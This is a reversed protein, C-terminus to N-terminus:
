NNNLIIYVVKDIITKNLLIPIVILKTKLLKYINLIKYTIGSIIDM